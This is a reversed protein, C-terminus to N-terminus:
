NFVERWHIIKDNGRFQGFTITASPYDASDIVDKSTGENNWNYNLYTPWTVDEHAPDLWLELEGTIGPADLEFQNGVPLGFMLTGESTVDGVLPDLSNNTLVIEEGSQTFDIITCNDDTNTLWQNDKYYEAKLPVNLPETEPGYTSELVLRGYRLLAGTVNNEPLALCELDDFSSKYCVDNDDAIIGVSAIIKNSLMLSFDGPFESLLTTTKPIQILPTTYGNFESGIPRTVTYTASGDYNETNTAIMVGLFEGDNGSNDTYSIHDSTLTLSWWDDDEGLGNGGYNFTTNGLANKATVTYTINNSLPIYQGVYSFNTCTDTLAPNNQEIEFFSPIFNGLTLTDEGNIISIPNNNDPLYNSDEVTLTIRGVEDYRATYSYLGEESIDDLPYTFVGDIAGIATLTPANRTMSIQLSGPEYNPLLADNSGYAGVTLTFDAGAPYTDADTAGTYNLEMPVVALKLIAPVIDIQASGSTITAGDILAQASLELRGVDGYNFESLSAVGNTFSLSLSESVLENLTNSGHLVPTKCTAPDQCNFSLDIDRPGDDLLAVCAGNGDNKVARLNVNSFNTEAIQDPLYKDSETAGIFEFGANVFEMNCSAEAGNQFCKVPVSPSASSIGLTITEAATYNLFVNTSGTFEPPTDGGVWGTPLLTIATANDYLDCEANNNICAKIVVSEAECTLGQSDHEIRYHDLVQCSSRDDMDENIQLVTQESNYLRLEDFQGNASNGSSVFQFYGSRNDGLYITATDSIDDDLSSSNSYAVDQQTGNVVIQMSENPLNWTIAIHVWTGATFNFSTDTDANIHGDNKDELSFQLKGSANLVLFFHKNPDSDSASSTSADMLQRANGSDWDENSKYWFSISGMNGLSSAKVGTDVADFVSDDTNLPVNLYRCAIQDSALISSVNSNIPSGNNGNATSDLVDGIASWSEQEFQYFAVPEIDCPSLADADTNIQEESQIFNYVRVDDFYGNASNRSSGNVAYSTSNDGIYLTGMEDLAGGEPTEISDTTTAKSGNVYLELEAALPNWTVAIHVWEDAAFSYNSTTSYIDDDDNYELGFRLSGNSRLVLFFYKDGASRTSADILQRNGGGSWPNNSRYWFSITGDEGLSNIDIGTDVANIISSSTNNDIELAQCSKQNASDLFPSVNGLAEGNNALDSSDLVDGTSSWTDQEFQYFGVQQEITSECIESFDYNAFLDDIYEVSSGSNLRLDTTSLTGTLLANDDVTTNANVYILSSVSSNAGLVLNSYVNLSLAATETLGSIQSSTGTSMNDRVYLYVTGTGEVEITNAGSNLNLQQVWYIGPRLSLTSGNQIALTEIFYENYNDSFSTTGTNVTVTRFTDTNYSGEGLSTNGGNFTVGGSFSPFSPLSLSTSSSGDVSCDATECSDGDSANIVASSFPLVTSPANIVVVNNDLTLNGISSHSQLVSPYVEDCSVAYVNGSLLSFYILLFNILPNRFNDKM